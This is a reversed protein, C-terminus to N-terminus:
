KIVIVLSQKTNWFNETRIVTVIDVRVGDKLSISKMTVTDHNDSQQM